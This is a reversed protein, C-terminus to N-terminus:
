KFVEYQKAEANCTLKTIHFVAESAVWLRKVNNQLNGGSVIFRNLMPKFMQKSCTFPSAVLTNNPM